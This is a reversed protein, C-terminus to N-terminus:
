GEPDYEVHLHTAELVVDYDSGLTERIDSVIRELHDPRIDRTRYDEALGKYHLSAASHSGEYGSTITLQYGYREYVRAVIRRAYEMEPMSGLVVGPKVAFVNRSAILLFAGVGILWKVSTGL